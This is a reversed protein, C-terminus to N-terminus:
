CGSTTSSATPRMGLSWRASASRLQGSTWSWRSDSRFFRAEGYAFGLGAIQNIAEDVEWPGVVADALRNAELVAAHQRGGGNGMPPLPKTPYNAPDLAAADVGAPAPTSQASSAQADDAAERTCGTGAAAVAMATLAAGVFKIM